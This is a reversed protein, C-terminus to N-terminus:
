LPELDLVAIINTKLEERASSPLEGLKEVLRQNDIARIQDVLIDSDRELGAMGSPLHVRLVESKPQLNSTIPCILTSPHGVRNLLNTQVVVVPRRKGAETGKRPNLDAIWLDFQKIAM